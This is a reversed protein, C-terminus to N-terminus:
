LFVWWLTYLHTHKTTLCLTAQITLPNTNRQSPYLLNIEMYSPLYNNGIPGGCHLVVTQCLCCFNIKRPGPPRSDLTLISAPNAASPQSPAGHREQSGRAELPRCAIKPTGQSTLHRWRMEAKMKMHWEGQTCMQRWPWIERKQYPRVGPLCIRPTLFVQCWSTVMQTNINVQVQSIFLFRM